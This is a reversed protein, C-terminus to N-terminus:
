SLEFRRLQRAPSVAARPTNRNIKMLSHGRSRHNPLRTSIIQNWLLGIMASGAVFSTTFFSAL